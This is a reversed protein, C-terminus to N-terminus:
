KEQLLPKDGLKKLEKIRIKLRRNEFFQALVIAMIFIRDGYQGTYHWYLWAAISGCLATILLLISDKSIMVDGVLLLKLCGFDIM